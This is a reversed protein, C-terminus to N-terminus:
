IWGQQKALNVAAIRHDVNLKTLINSMYNRVTGYSLFMEQAIEQNTFGQSIYQLLKIEQPTLPNEKNVIAVMLEPSYEKGGLLVRHLTAMLESINRDKLVYADVDAKIAREFYGPRKFTTMIVVKIKPQHQKIWELIDLGSRYPLEIDLLAIDIDYQQLDIIAQQGDASQYVHDVDQQMDLLQALADRLMHQDEVILINM